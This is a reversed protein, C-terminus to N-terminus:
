AQSTDDVSVRRKLEMLLSAQVNPPQHQQGHQRQQNHQQQQQLQAQQQQLQKQATPPPPQSRVAATLAPPVSYIREIEQLEEETPPLPLDEPHSGLQPQPKQHQQHQQPHQHHHLQSQPQQQRSYNNSVAVSHHDLHHQQQYHQQHHQHQLMQHPHQQQQLHQQQQQLRHHDPARIQSPHYHQPHQGQHQQKQHPHQPQRPGHQQRQLQSGGGGGSSIRHQQQKQAVLSPPLPIGSKNPKQMVAPPPPKSPSVQGELLVSSTNVSLAPEYSNGDQYQSNLSAFKANLSQIVNVTSTQTNMDVETPHAPLHQPPMYGTQQGGPGPPSPYPYDPYQNNMNSAFGDVPEGRNLEAYLPEGLGGGQHFHQQQQQYYYQQHQQQQQQQQVTGSDVSAQRPPSNRLKQVHVPTAGTVSSARRVPPPPKQVTNVSSRRAISIAPNPGGGLMPIGATSAPRRPQLAARYAASAEGSRPITYYKESESQELVCCDEEHIYYETDYESVEPIASPFGGSAITDESSAPTSNMTGYGSSCQLSTKSTYSEADYAVVGGNSSSSSSSCNQSHNTITMDSGMPVGTAQLHSSPPPPPGSIPLPQQPAPAYAAEQPTDYASTLAATSAELERIAKALELSTDQQM